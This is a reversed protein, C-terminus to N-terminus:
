KALTAFRDALADDEAAGEKDGATRLYNALQRAATQAIRMNDRVDLMTEGAYAGGPSVKDVEQVQFVTLKAYDAFGAVAPKLLSAALAPDDTLSALYVRAKFTETPVLYELSRVKFYPTEEIDVLRRAIRIAADQDRHDRYINLLKGLAPLNDPDHSLAQNLSSIAGVRDGNEYQAEALARYNRASPNKDTAEQLLPIRQAADPLTRSILYRAEGDMPWMAAATQALAVGEEFHQTGIALRAQARTAEAGGALLALTAVLGLAAAGALRPGKPTYEPTVADSALLLGLGIFVFFPLGIGFYYLDSDVFSHIAVGVVTAIIAAKLIKTDPPQLRSGRLMLWMWFGGFALLVLPALVSAETGLQLFANHALVTQTNMGSRSSEFRYSALGYGIPNARMMQLAGSYLNKRFATSQDTSESSGQLRSFGAGGGVPGNPAPAARPVAAFALVVTLALTGALRGVALKRESSWLLVLVLFLITCIGTVLLGGRSQTLTLALGILGTLVGALLARARSELVVVALGSLFGIMLASAAANPNIWGAFIRWSADLSKMQGYEAVGRLAVVVGGVFAGLVIARPGVRRGVTAVVAYIAALYTLWEPLLGLSVGRHSSYIVSGCLLAAFFLVFISVGPTPVQIVHRRVLVSSLLGLVPLSLLAHTLLPVDPAGSLAATLASDALKGSETAYQGGIILSLAVTVALVLAGAPIKM